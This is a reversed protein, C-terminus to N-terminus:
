FKPFFPNCYLSHYRSVKPKNYRIFDWYEVDGLEKLEAKQLLSARAVASKV